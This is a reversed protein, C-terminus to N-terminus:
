GYLLPDSFTLRHEDVADAVLLAPGSTGGSCVAPTGDVEVSDDQDLSRGPLM